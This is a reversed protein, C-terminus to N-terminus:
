EERVSIFSSCMVVCYCLYLNWSCSMNKVDTTIILATIKSFAVLYVAPVDEIFGYMLYVNRGVTDKIKLYM